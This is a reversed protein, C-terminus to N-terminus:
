SHDPTRRPSRKVLELGVRNPLLRVDDVSATMLALALFCARVSPRQNRPGDDLLIPPSVLFLRDSQRCVFVTANYNTLFGFRTRTDDMYRALQGLKAALRTRANNDIPAVLPSRQGFVDTAVISTTWPTKAEGVAALPHTTIAPSRAAAAPEFFASGARIIALDPARDDLTITPVAALAAKAPCDALQCRRDRGDPAGMPLRRNPAHAHVCAVMENM